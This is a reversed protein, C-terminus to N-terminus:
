VDPCATLPVEAEATLHAPPHPNRRTQFLTNSTHHHPVPLVPLQLSGALPSNQDEALAM